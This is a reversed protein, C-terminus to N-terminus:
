TRRALGTEFARRLDTASRRTDARVAESCLLVGPQPNCSWVGEVALVIVGARLRGADVQYDAMVAEAVERPSWGDAPDTGMADPHVSGAVGRSGGDVPAPPVALAHHDSGRHEGWWALAPECSRRAALQLPPCGALHGFARPDFVEQLQARRRARSEAAPSPERDGLQHEGEVEIFRRWWAVWGDSAEAREEPGLGPVIREVGGVLPPPVEPGEPTLQCADRVYLIAHAQQGGGVAVRWSGSGATRVCWVTGRRIGGDGPLYPDPGGRLVVHPVIVPGISACCPLRGTVM